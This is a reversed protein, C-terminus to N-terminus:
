YSSDVEYYIKRIMVLVFRIIFIISKDLMVVLVFICGEFELDELVCFIINLFGIWFDFGVISGYVWM